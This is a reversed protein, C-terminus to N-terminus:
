LGQQIISLKMSFHESNESMMHILRDTAPDTLWNKYEDFDTFELQANIQLRNEDITGKKRSNITSEINQIFEVDQLTETLDLLENTPLRESFMMSSQIRLQVITITESQARASDAPIFIFLVSLILVVSIPHITSTM